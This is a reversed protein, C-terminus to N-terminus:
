LGMLKESGGGRRKGANSERSQSLFSDPAGVRGVALRRLDNIIYGAQIIVCALCRGTLLQEGVFSIFFRISPRGSLQNKRGGLVLVKEGSM